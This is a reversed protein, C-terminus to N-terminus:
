DMVALYYSKLLKAIWSDFLELILNSHTTRVNKHVNYVSNNYRTNYGHYTIRVGM